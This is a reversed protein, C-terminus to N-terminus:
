RPLASLYGFKGPHGAQWSRCRYDWLATIPAWAVPNPGEEYVNGNQVVLAQVREPLETAISIGVPAGYDQIFLSYEDLGRQELFTNITDAFNDFSYTCQTAAPFESAGFGPNDPAILHYSDSLDDILNRYKHSSSPFSHPLVLTPYARDRAERFFVKHGDVTEHGFRTEPVAISTSLLLTALAAVSFSHISM